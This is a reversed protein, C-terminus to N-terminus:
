HEHDEEGHDHDDEEPAAQAGLPSVQMFDLLVTGTGDLRLGVPGPDPPTGHGHTIIKDGAHARFHRGDSVVRYAQRGRATWDDADMQNEKGGDITGLRAQTGTLDVFHYHQADAVHHVVEFHGSFGDLNVGLAAEMDGFDGEFVFLVPIGHTTLSLAPGRTSDTALATTVDAPAGELWRAHDKWAEADAPHWAWGGGEIPAPGTTSHEHPAEATATEAEHPVAQVGVGHKFVMQAGHEGTEFVLILGGLGAVFLLGSIAPKPERIFRLALLRLVAYIGFFWLTWLALDAHETLTPEAAKPIVLADAARDGTFYAAGAGLAGLVFLTVATTHWHRHRPFVLGLFDILGAAFLLAIPFHVIAPHLNPAWDPLFEMVTHQNLPVIPPLGTAYASHSLNALTLAPRILNVTLSEPRPEKLSSPLLM